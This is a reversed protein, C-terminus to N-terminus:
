RGIETRFVNSGETHCRLVVLAGVVVSSYSSTIDALLATRDGGLIEVERITLRVTSTIETRMIFSQKSELDKVRDEVGPKSRLGILGAM